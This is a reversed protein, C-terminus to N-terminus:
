GIRLGLAFGAIFSARPQFDATLFDILWNWLSVVTPPKSTGSADKTYFMDEFRTAMRGWHVQVLSASRLYQLLFFVGGLFWAVAKAGKKVFVGACVGAVTGFGLEYVSVSSTPPPPRNRPYIPDGANSPPASFVINPCQDVAFVGFCKGDCQIPARQLSALGLGIGAVLTAGKAAFSIRGGNGSGSELTHKVVSSFNSSPGHGYNLFPRSALRSSLHRTAGNQQSAFVSGFVRRTALHPLFFAM